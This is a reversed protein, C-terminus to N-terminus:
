GAACPQLHVRHYGASHPNIRRESRLAHRDRCFPWGLMGHETVRPNDFFRYAAKTTAWDGCAAPVPQGPAASM